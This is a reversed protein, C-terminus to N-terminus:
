YRAGRVTLLQKRILFECNIRTVRWTKDLGPQKGLEIKFPAANPALDRDRGAVVAVNMDGADECVQAVSPVVFPANDNYDELHIILTGTGTAPPTGPCLCWCPRSPAM